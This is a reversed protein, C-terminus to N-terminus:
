VAVAAAAEALGDPVDVARELAVAVVGRLHVIADIPVPRVAIPEAAVAVAVVDAASRSVILDRSPHLATGRQVQKENQSPVHRGRRSAHGCSRQASLLAHLAGPLLRPTACGM